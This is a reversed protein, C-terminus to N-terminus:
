IQTVETKTGPFAKVDNWSVICAWTATFEPIDSGFAVVVDNTITRLISGTNLQRNLLSFM